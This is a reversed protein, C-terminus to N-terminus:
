FNKGRLLQHEYEVACAGKPLGNEGNLEASDNGLLNFAMASAPRLAKMKGVLESGSERSYEAVHRADM